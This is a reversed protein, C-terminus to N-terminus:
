TNSSINHISGLLCPMRCAICIGPSGCSDNPRGHNNLSESHHLKKLIQDHM